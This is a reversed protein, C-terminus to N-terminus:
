RDWIQTINKFVYGILVCHTVLGWEMKQEEQCEDLPKNKAILKKMSKEFNLVKRM